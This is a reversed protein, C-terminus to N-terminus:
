LQFILQNFHLSVTFLTISNLFKCEVDKRVSEVWESWITVERSIRHHDPDIFCSLKQFGGDTILYGGKVLEKDGHTNYVFYEVDRLIGSMIKVSMPDNNAIQLDNAAGFFHRSCHWIRRFHDVITLFALSPYKEKGKCAFKIEKPCKGWHIHSCDMSGMAGPLGLRAYVKLVEQLYLGTPETIYMDYVREAMGEVFERFITYVTSEGIMESSLETIEDACSGRGLIRLCALVKLEVPIIKSPRFINKGRCLSVLESFLPFPLRFRRRFLKGLRTRPNHVDARSILKGWATEDFKTTSLDRKQRKKPLEKSVQRLQNDLIRKCLDDEEESESSSTNGTGPDAHSELKGFYDGFVKPHPSAVGRAELETTNLFRHYPPIKFVTRRKWEKIKKREPIKREKEAEM